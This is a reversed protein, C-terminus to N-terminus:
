KSQRSGGAAKAAKQAIEPKNSACVLFLVFPTTLSILSTRKQGEASLGKARFTRWGHSVTTVVKWIGGLAITGYM